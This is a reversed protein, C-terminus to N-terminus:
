PAQTLSLLRYDWGSTEGMDDWWLLVKGQNSVAIAQPKTSAITKLSRQRRQHLNHTGHFSGRGDCCSLDVDWFETVEFFHTGYGRLREWRGIRSAVRPHALQGPAVGELGDMGKPGLAQISALPIVVAQRYSLSLGAITPHAALTGPNLADIDAHTNLQLAQSTLATLLTGAEQGQALRQADLRVPLLVLRDYGWGDSAAKRQDLLIHLYSTIVRRRLVQASLAPCAPGCLARERAEAWEARHSLLTGLALCVGPIGVWAVVRASTLSARWRRLGHRLAAREEPHSWLWGAMAVLAALLMLALANVVPTMRYRRSEPQADTQVTRHM